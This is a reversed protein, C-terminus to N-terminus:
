AVGVASAPGFDVGFWLVVIAPEETAPLRTEAAMAFVAVGAAVPGTEAAAAAGLATVPMAGPVALATATASVFTAGGDFAVGRIAGSTPGCASLVIWPWM